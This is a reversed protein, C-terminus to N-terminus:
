RGKEIAPTAQPDSSRADVGVVVARAYPITSIRGWVPTATRRAVNWASRISVEDGLVVLDAWHVLRVFERDRRLAHWTRHNAAYIRLTRLLRAPLALSEDPSYTGEVGSPIYVDEGEMGRSTVIRLHDGDELHARTQEATRVARVPDLALLLVRM